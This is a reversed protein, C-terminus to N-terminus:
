HQLALKIRTRTRSIWNYFPILGNKLSQPFVDKLERHLGFKIAMRGKGTLPIHYRTLEFRGFGNSQKFKDLSPHNGIRGYMIWELHRDACVEVAKAVLSNNVAKDWHKQLSLIQSIIAIKDGHVIQVFGALEDQFFAGIFTSNTAALVGKKVAQLSVGYHPFGREQRIPTENFIKWIGVALEETPEVFSTRIGSKEAKRVMNRTKKGISKWWEDYTTNHLLAVNDTTKIWSDPPNSITRSWRREIFTFIDTGRETLKKLFRDDPIIDKGYENTDIAIKFFAKRHTAVTDLEKDAQLIMKLTEYFPGRRNLKGRQFLWIPHFYLVYEKKANEEVVKLAKNGTHHHCIIDLSTVPFRHFSELPLNEPITPAKTFWRKWMFRALLRETGHITYYKVKRGTKAELEKWEKYPDNAVHLAIEHSEDELLMLLESDPTTTRTFFWFAEVKKPSENIMRAIIKANKLYGKSPKINLTTCVFSEIRSSYPYDVDIRFKM